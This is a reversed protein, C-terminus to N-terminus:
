NSPDVPEIPPSDGGSGSRTPDPEFIEGSADGANPDLAPPLAGARTPDVIPTGLVDASTTAQLSAVIATREADRQQARAADNASGDACGGLALM